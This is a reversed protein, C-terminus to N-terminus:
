SRFSGWDQNIEALKNTVSGLVVRCDKFPKPRGNITTKTKTFRVGISNQTEAKKETKHKLVGTTDSGNKAQEKEDDYDITANM